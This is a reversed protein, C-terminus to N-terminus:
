GSRDADLESGDTWERTPTVWRAGPTFRDGTGYRQPIMGCALCVTLAYGVHMLFIFGVDCAPRRIETLPSETLVLLWLGGCQFRNVQEM